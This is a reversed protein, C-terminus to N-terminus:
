AAVAIIDAATLVEPRYPEIEGSDKLRTMKEIFVRIEDDGNIGRFKWYPYDWWKLRLLEDIVDDSFRKRRVSAPVGAVLCYPPVDKTVVARQAIVAGDGIVVGPKILVDSGIWVDNGITIPARIEDWPVLEFGDNEEMGSKAPTVGRESPNYLTIPSTSFRDQPHRGPYFARTGSAISCFRGIATDPPLPAHSLYSSTGVKRPLVGGTNVIQTYPELRLDEDFHIQGSFANFQLDRQVYVHKEFFLKKVLENVTYNFTM